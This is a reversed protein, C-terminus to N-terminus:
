QRFRLAGEQRRRQRRGELSLGATPSGQGLQRGCLLTKMDPSLIVGNPRQVDTIIQTVTGDPDVRYVSETDIERKESGAYRPDTFYVRGKTDVTLDNPSNFKKGKWNDALSRVKGDAETISIRRNGGSAGECAVLRGQSDIDLGNAKGSPERFVSVQGTKPDYQMIRNGIDSWLVFPGPGYVPGETFTGEGWLKEVKADTAVIPNDAQGFLLAPLVLLLIGSLLRMTLSGLNSDSLSLISIM